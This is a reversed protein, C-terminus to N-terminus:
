QQCQGATARWFPTRRLGGQLDTSRVQIRKMGLVHEAVSSCVIGTLTTLTSHVGLPSAVVPAHVKERSSPWMGEHYVVQAPGPAFTPTDGTKQVVNVVNWGGFTWM